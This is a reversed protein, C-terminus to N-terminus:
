TDSNNQLYKHINGQSGLDTVSFWLNSEYNKRVNSSGKRIM